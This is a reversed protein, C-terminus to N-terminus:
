SRKLSILNDKFFRTMGSKGDVAVFAGLVIGKEVLAEALELSRSLSQSRAKRGLDKAEVTVMMGPIDTQPDITEAPRQVVGPAKVFGANSVATAAADALSATGAIVTAASAIGRTLSRGGLGSTAVGFAAGEKEPPVTLRVSYIFDPSEVNERLGVRVSAPAMLRVAIDGGNNIIVRTMGRSFLFDAVEDAITGAVAAMPTLSTDGLLRVSELMKRAPSTTPCPDTEKQPRMLSSKVRAVDALYDFAKKAALRNMEPQPNKGVFASIVLRMPGWEAM